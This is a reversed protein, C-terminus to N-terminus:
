PVLIGCAVSCSLGRAVVVSSACRLRLAFVWMGCSSLLELVAVFLRCAVIFLEHVAVFLDRMGCCLEQM